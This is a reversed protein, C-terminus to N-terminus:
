GRWRVIKRPPSRGAAAASKAAVKILATAMKALAAVEAGGAAGAGLEARAVGSADIHVAVEWDADPEATALRCDTFDMPEVAVTPEAVKGSGDGGHCRACWANWMEPITRPPEPTQAFAPAALALWVATACLTRM